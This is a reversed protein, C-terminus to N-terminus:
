RLPAIKRIYFYKGQFQTQVLKEERILRKVVDWSADAKKLFENLGDERMPHVSTIGLLDDEVDSTLAFDNGEYGILHEVHELKSTFIQYAMNITAEDAGKIGAKAPPRTPIAIYAKSPNIKALFNAIQQIESQTDNIGKILMTETTLEGKYMNSFEIIGKLIDNINLARHPRNIQHWIDRDIADIKISVWEARALDDRLTKDWILSANTIVAIKIGLAKLMDIQDGLNIDLTPEGDPVFSLYDIKENAKRAREVKEAVSHIIEDKPYFPKRDIQMQITNGLQCYICAYTCIKPPINNIGLSRGLRRSPVPGYAKSQSSKQITNQM